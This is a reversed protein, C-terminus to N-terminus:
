PGGAIWEADDLAFDSPTAAGPVPATETPATGSLFVEERAGPTNRTALLGSAPDILATVVDAPRAFPQIPLGRHGARMLDLWIPLAARAGSGPTRSRRAAPSDDDEPGQTGLPRNDDFGVWVGAVWQPTFGVFWADRADTSTGTKGAAPRGLAGFASYATAHPDEFVSRMLDALVHAAGADVVRVPDPRALPLLTGDPRRVERLFTPERRLGGAAVVSLASTLELPTVESAGLALTLERRLPSEIGLAKALRLVPGLGVKDLIKVAVINVSRALATRVSIPGLFRSHGSNQPKWDGFVEPADNVITAATIKREQLAALYVIPKFASGPQRHAQLARDFQGPGAFSGGVIASVEGTAPDIAVAAAEPGLELRARGVQGRPQVQLMRVRALAGVEAFRSAHLGDPNYRSAESLRVDALAAGVQFRITGAGDDTEIVRGIYIRDPEPLEERALQEGGPAPIEGGPLRRLPGRYGHREDLAQLGALVAARAERQLTPDLATIVRYGGRALDVDGFRRRLEARVADVYEAAWAPTPEPEPALRIPEADAERLQTESIFGNRQMQRLVYHRRAIAKEPSVRPSYVAPGKPLAALLAAEALSVDAIGKAFYYRAAEEIGYRGHGFCIQNLYLSLIQDKSLHQEVRRALLLEKVKRELTKERGLYFTRVVQQTITSGGQAYYGKWVNVVLSRVMGLWDLGAHSRFNADEAAIVADLMVKPVASLPVVTRRGEDAFIEGIVTRGDRAYIRTVQPPRYNKGLDDVSPLGDAYKNVIIAVAIAGALLLVFLAIGSWMAWRLIRRKWSRIPKTRKRPEKAEARPAGDKGAKPDAAGVKEDRGDAELSGPAASKRSTTDSTQPDEESM